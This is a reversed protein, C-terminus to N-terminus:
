EDIYDEESDSIDSQDDGDTEGFQSDLEYDTDEIYKKQVGGGSRRTKRTPPKVADGSMMEELILNKLKDEFDKLTDNDIGDSEDYQDYIDELHESLSDIHKHLTRSACQATYEAIEEQKPTKVVEVIKKGRRAPFHNPRLKRMIPDLQDEKGTIRVQKMLEAKKAKAEEITKGEFLPKGPAMPDNALIGEKVLIRWIKGGCKIMRGSRPNLVFSM